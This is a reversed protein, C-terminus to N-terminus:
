KKIVPALGSEGEDGSEEGTTDVLPGLAGGNGAAFLKQFVELEWCFKLLRKGVEMEEVVERCVSGLVEEASVEGGGGGGGGGGSGSWPGGFRAPAFLPKRWAKKEAKRPPPPVAAAPPVPFPLPKSQVDTQHQHQQKNGSKLQQFLKSVEARSDVKSKVEDENALPTPTTSDTPTAM